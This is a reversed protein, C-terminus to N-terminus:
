NVLAASWAPAIANVEPSGAGYLDGAAKITAQWAAADNTSTTMYVSPLALGLTNDNMQFGATATEATITVDRRHM